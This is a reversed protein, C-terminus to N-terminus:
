RLYYHPHLHADHELWFLDSTQAALRGGPRPRPRPHLRSRPRPRYRPRPRHKPRPRRRSKVCHYLLEASFFVSSVLVGIAHVFFAAKVEDLTLEGDGERPTVVAAQFTRRLWVAMLGADMCRLLFVNMEELYPFNRNMIYSLMYKRPCEDVLHYDDNNVKASYAISRRILFSGDRREADSRNKPLM